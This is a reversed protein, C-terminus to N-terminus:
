ASRRQVRPTPERMARSYAEAVDPDLYAASPSGAPTFIGVLVLHDTASTNEVIHRERSHLRFASGPGLPEPEGELHLAGEGSLILIIEDYLHYHRPARGPPVYGVFATARTSGNEPGHLIQFSRAGTAKEADARNALAAPRRSGIPAHLDVHPGIEVVGAILGEPGAVVTEREGAVLHASSPAAAPRGEITGGGAHLLVFVDREPHGVGRREGSGLAFRDFSLQSGEVPPLPGDVTVRASM